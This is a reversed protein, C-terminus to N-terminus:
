LTEKLLQHGVEDIRYTGEVTMDAHDTIAKKIASELAAIRLHAAALEVDKKDLDSKHAEWAAM